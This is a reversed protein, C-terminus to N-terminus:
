DAELYDKLIRATLGWITGGATRYFYYTMHKKAFLRDKEGQLLDYPFGPEPESTLIVEHTLPPTKLLTNVPLCLVKEVELSSFTNEYKSLEAYFPFVPGGDPGIQPPLAVPKKIQREKVMMEEMMERIAGHLPDEGPNLRGGPFCLEGPHTKLSASRKEFLLFKGEPKVLVPVLVAYKNDDNLGHFVTNGKKMM